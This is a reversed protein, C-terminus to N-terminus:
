YALRHGAEADPGDGFRNPGPTSGSVLFVLLVIAGILPILAILYWWGTRDTDHLRRVGAALSPIFLGLVVLVTVIGYNAFLSSGIVSDVIMALLYAVIFLLYFWWYESRPARGSFDAYKQLPRM